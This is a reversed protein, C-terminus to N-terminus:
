KLFIKVWSKAGLFTVSKLVTSLARKSVGVFSILAELETMKSLTNYEKFFASRPMSDFIPCTSGVTLFKIVANGGIELCAKGHRSLLVRM